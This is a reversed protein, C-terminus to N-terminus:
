YLFNQIKIYDFRETIPQIYEDLEVLNTSIFELDNVFEPEDLDNLNSISEVSIVEDSDSEYNFYGASDM